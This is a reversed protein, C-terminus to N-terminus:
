SVTLIENWDTTYKQSKRLQKMKWNGETKVTAFKVTDKGFKQNVADIAKM